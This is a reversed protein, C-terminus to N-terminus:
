HKVPVRCSLFLKFRVKVSSPSYLICILSTVQESDVASAVTYGPILSLFAPELLWARLWQM